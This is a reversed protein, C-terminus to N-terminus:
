ASEEPAEGGWSENEFCVIFLSVIQKPLLFPPSPTLLLFTPLSFLTRFDVKCIVSATEVVVKPDMVKAVEKFDGGPSVGVYGAADVEVDGVADVVFDGATVLGKFFGTDRAM